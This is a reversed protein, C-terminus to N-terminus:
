MPREKTSKINSIDRQFVKVSARILPIISNIGYTAGSIASIGAAIRARPIDHFAAIMMIM